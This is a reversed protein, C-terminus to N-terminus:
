GARVPHAIQNPEASRHGARGPLTAAILSWGLVPALLACFWILRRDM